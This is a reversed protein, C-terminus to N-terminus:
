FFGSKKQVTMIDTFFDGEVMPAGIERRDGSEFKKKAQVESEAEVFYTRVVRCPYSDTFMFTLMNTSGVRGNFRM